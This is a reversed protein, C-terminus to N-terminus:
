RGGRRDKRHIRAFAHRRGAASIRVDRARARLPRGITRLPHPAWRHCGAHTAVRLSRGEGRVASKRRCRGVHASAGTSPAPKLYQNTLPSRFKGSWTVPQDRLLPTFLDLNEEFLEEYDSLDFGFLPFSETLSGRGLILQARGNSVADLTAFQTFVRVPDQTSLVTQTSQKRGVDSSRVIGNGVKRATWAAVLHQRRSGLASNPALEGQGLVEADVARDHGIEEVVELCRVQNLAARIRSIPPRASNDCRLM